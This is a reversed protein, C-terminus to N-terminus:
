RIMYLSLQFLSQTRHRRSGSLGSYGTTCCSASLLSLSAMYSFQRIMWLLGVRNRQGEGTCFKFVQKLQFIKQTLSVFWEKFLQRLVVNAALILVLAFRLSCTLVVLINFSWSAFSYNFLTDAIIFDSFGM